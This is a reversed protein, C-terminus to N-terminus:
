GNRIRQIISTTSMQELGLNPTRNSLVINTMRSLKQIRNQIDEEPLDNNIIYYDARLTLVASFLADYMNYYMAWHEPTLFAEETHRCSRVVELRSLERIIPRGPHKKSLEVDRGVMVFVKGLRAANKLFAVHGSHFLDFSGSVFVIPFGELKLKAAKDAYEKLTTM